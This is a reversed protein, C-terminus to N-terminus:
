SKVANAEVWTFSLCVVPTNYEVAHHVVDTLPLLLNHCLALVLLRTTHSMAGSSVFCLLASVGALLPILTSTIFLPLAETCWLMSVFALLAACNQEQPKKFIKVDATCMRLSPVLGPAGHSGHSPNNRQLTCVVCCTKVLSLPSLTHEICWECVAQACQQVQVSKSSTKFFM